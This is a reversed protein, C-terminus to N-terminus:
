AVSLPLDETAGRQKVALVVLQRGNQIKWQHGNILIWGKRQFSSVIRSVTERSSGISQAIEEHTLNIRLNGSRRRRAAAGRYLDLLFRAVRAAVASGFQRIDSYTRRCRNGLERAVALRFTEDSRMASLLERTPVFLATMPEIAEVTAQYVSDGMVAELGVIDGPQVIRIIAAKGAVSSLYEKAQGTCICFIGAAPEGELSLQAGRSYESPVLTARLEGQTLCTYLDFNSDPESTQSPFAIVSHM